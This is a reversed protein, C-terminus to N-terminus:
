EEWSVWGSVHKTEKKAFNVKVISPNSSLICDSADWREGACCTRAMWAAATRCTNSHVPWTLIVHVCMCMRAYMYMYTSVNILFLGHSSHHHCIFHINYIPFKVWWPWTQLNVPVQNWQEVHLSTRHIYCTCIFYLTHFFVLSLQTNLSANQQSIFAPLIPLM